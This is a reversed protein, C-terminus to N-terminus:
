LYLRAFLPHFDRAILSQKSTRLVTLDRILFLFIRVLLCFDILRGSTRLRFIWGCVRNLRQLLVCKGTRVSQPLQSCSDPKPMSWLTVTVVIFPSKITRSWSSYFFQFRWNQFPSATKNNIKERGKHFSVKKADQMKMEIPKLKMIQGADWM